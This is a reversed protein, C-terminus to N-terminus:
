PLKSVHVNHWATVGYVGSVTFNLATFTGRSKPHRRVVLEEVVPVVAFIATSKIAQETGFRGRGLVPNTEYRGFSSTIDVTKAVAVVVESTRFLWKPAASASALTLGLALSLKSLSM